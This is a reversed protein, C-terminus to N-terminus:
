WEEYIPHHGTLMYLLIGGASWMDIQESYECFGKLLEPASYGITGIHTMMIINQKSNPDYKIQLKKSVNFDIIKIKTGYSNVLLNDPKM